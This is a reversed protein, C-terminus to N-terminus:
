IILPDVSFYNIFYDQGANFLRYISLKIQTSALQIFTITRISSIIYHVWSMNVWKLSWLTGQELNLCPWVIFSKSASILSSSDTDPAWVLWDQQKVEGSRQERAAGSDPCWWEGESSFLPQCSLHQVCSRALLDFPPVLVLGCLLRRCLACLPTRNKGAQRKIILSEGTMCVSMMVM